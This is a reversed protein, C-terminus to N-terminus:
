DLHTCFILITVFELKSNCYSLIIPNYTIFKLYNKRQELCSSYKKDNNDCKLISWDTSVNFFLKKTEISM